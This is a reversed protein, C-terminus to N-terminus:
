IQVHRCNFIGTAKRSGASGDRQLADAAFVLVTLPFAQTGQRRATPAAVQVFRSLPPSFCVEAQASSNQTHGLHM